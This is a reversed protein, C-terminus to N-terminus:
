LPAWGTVGGIIIGAAIFLIVDLWDWNIYDM